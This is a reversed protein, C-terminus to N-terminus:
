NKKEKLVFERGICVNVFGSSILSVFAYVFLSLFEHNQCLGAEFLQFGM